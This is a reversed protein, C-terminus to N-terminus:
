LAEPRGRQLPLLPLGHDLRVSPDAGAMLPENPGASRGASCSAPRPGVGPEALPGLSEYSESPANKTAPVM